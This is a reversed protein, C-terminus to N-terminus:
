WCLLLYGSLSVMLVMAMNAARTMSFSSTPLVITTLNDGFLEHLRYVHLSERGYSPRQLALVAFGSAVGDRVHVHMERCCSQASASRNLPVCLVETCDFVYPHAFALQTFEVYV